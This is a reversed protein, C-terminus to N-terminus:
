GKAALIMPLYLRSARGPALILAFADRGGNFTGDFADPTTPLGESALGAVYIAGDVGVAIGHGWERNLAGIFTSYTLTSGSASVATVFIDPCPDGDECLLTYNGNYSTDFAGPTTPFDASGAGGTVYAIGDTGIAIAYAYDDKAGGLLAGYILSAGDPAIRVVFVDRCKFTNPFSGCWGGAHTTDFAGPTTPFDPSKTMGTVYASGDAGAAIAYPTDQDDGGLYSAYSLTAGGQTLVAVFGEGPGGYSPDFAGSTTPFDSSWTPGTVYIYDAYLAVGFANDVNSGGIFTGYEFATGAPNLRVVFADENGDCAGNLGCTTDYAGATIPFDASYTAGVVTAAGRADVAIARPWDTANGGLFTSYELRSGDPSIKSVFGEWLGGGRPDAAGPTIPFSGHNTWGTVYAAGNIDVALGYAEDSGIGGLYTVYVAAGATPDLRAVFVDDNGRRNTQLVGPTVPLDDSWTEGALYIDGDPGIAIARARDTAAGGLYTSYHLDASTFTSAHPTAAARTSIRFADLGPLGDILLWVILLSCACAKRLWTM